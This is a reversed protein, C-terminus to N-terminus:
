EKRMLMRESRSTGNRWFLWIFVVLFVAYVSLQLTTPSDAYGLFSHLIDGFTSDENLLSATNWVAPQHPLWGTEQFSEVGNALLGAAFLVLLTGMINFFYKLNIRRGLIYIFYSLVLGSVTGMVGGVALYLPRAHFAIAIMFVVTELGERGVTIFAILAIAFVSGSQIAADMKSHLESKLHRGQKKMWLTMYTLVVSAVFYTVGEIRAQLVSGDYSHLTFFVIIGGGVAVLVAAAVGLWVDKFADRRGIQQLYALMISCIMSAELSERFFILLSGLM